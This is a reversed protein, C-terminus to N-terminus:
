ALILTVNKLLIAEPLFIENNFVPLLNGQSYLHYKIMEKWCFWQIGTFLMFLLINLFVM